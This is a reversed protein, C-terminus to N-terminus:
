SKQPRGFLLGIAVGSILMFRLKGADDNAVGSRGSRRAGNSHWDRRTRRAVSYAKVRYLAGVALGLALAGFISFLAAGARFSGLDLNSDLHQAFTRLSLIPSQHISMAWTRRILIPRPSSRKRSRAFSVSCFLFHRKSIWTHLLYIGGVPEETEFCAHRTAPVIGVIEM